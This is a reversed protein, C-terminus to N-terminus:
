EEVDKFIEDAFFESLEIQFGECVHLITALNPNKCKGNIFSSLTSYSIGSQLSLKHLTIKRESALQTIRKKVAESLTM